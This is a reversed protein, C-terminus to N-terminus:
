IGRRSKRLTAALPEEDSSSDPTDGDESPNPSRRIEAKVHTNGPSM